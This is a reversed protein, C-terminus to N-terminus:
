KLVNMIKTLELTKKLNLLHFFIILFNFGYNLVITPPLPM